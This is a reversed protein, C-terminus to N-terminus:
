EYFEHKKIYAAGKPLMWIVGENVDYEESVIFGKKCLSGIVGSLAKGEINSPTDSDNVAWSWVGHGKEGYHNNALSRLVKQENETIM